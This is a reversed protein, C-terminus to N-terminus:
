RSARSLLEVIEHTSQAQAIDPLRRGEGDAIDVRAGRELLLWVAAAQKRLVAFALPTQWDAEHVDDGGRESGITSELLSPDDDLLANLRDLNEAVVADFVGIPLTNLYDAVESSGATVAWQLPTAAHYNDRVGLSAGKALLLEVMARHGQFAAQHLPAVDGLRGLDFGLDAMLRVAELRNTGAADVVLDTEAQQVREILGPNDKVLQRATDADGAQCAGILRASVDVEGTEAGHEALFRALDPHGARVAAEFLTKGDQTKGTADAGHDVLLRAREVHHKQVAWNLQYDLTRDPNETYVGDKGAWRWNNRHDRTLGHDLLMALCEHGPTFMTNYLAQGDNPDAGADLLLGALATCHEHPPQNVPGMEGEGFAGTLATFRYQGGWMYHSDPDAGREILLGAVGLTSHGDLDLRSYCAYLLPEWDFYGGRRNVLAPEEDLFRAVSAVDGVCAAHWIDRSALGPEAELMKRARDRNEPRDTQFYALCSLLLLDSNDGPHTVYAELQRWTAFGYETAAARRAGATTTDHSSEFSAVWDHVKNISQDWPLQKPM